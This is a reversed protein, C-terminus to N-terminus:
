GIQFSHNTRDIQMGDSDSGGVNVFRLKVSCYELLSVNENSGM